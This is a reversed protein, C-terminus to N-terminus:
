VQENHISSARSIATRMRAIITCDLAGRDVARVKASKVGAAQLESLIVKRIQEGFQYIVASELHIEIGAEDEVCFIQILIDSSELTGAIADCIIM